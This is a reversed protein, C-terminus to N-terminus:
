PEFGAERRVGHPRSVSVQEPHAEGAVFAIDDSIVLSFAPFPAQRPVGKEYSPEKAERRHVRFVRPRSLASPWASQGVLFPM